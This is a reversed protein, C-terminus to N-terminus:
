YSDGQHNKKNLSAKRKLSEHLKDPIEVILKRM